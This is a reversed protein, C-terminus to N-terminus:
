ECEQLQAEQGSAERRADRRPRAVAGGDSERTIQLDQRDPRDRRLGHPAAPAAAARCLHLGGVQCLMAHRPTHTLLLFRAGHCLVARCQM